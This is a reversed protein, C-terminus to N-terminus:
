EQTFSLSIQRENTIIQSNDLDVKILREGSPFLDGLRIVKGDNMLVGGTLLFKVGLKSAHFIEIPASSTLSPAVGDLYPSIAAPKKVAPLSETTNFKPQTSTNQRIPDFEVRGSSVTNSTKTSPPSPAIAAAVQPLPVQQSKFIPNELSSGVPPSATESNQSVAATANKVSSLSLQHLLKELMHLRQTKQNLQASLEASKSSFMLFTSAIGIVVGLLVCAATFVAMELSIIKQHRMM